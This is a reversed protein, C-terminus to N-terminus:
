LMASDVDLSGMDDVLAGASGVLLVITDGKTEVAMLLDPGVVILM